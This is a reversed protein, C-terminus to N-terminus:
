RPNDHRGYLVPQRLDHLVSFLAGKAIGLALIRYRIAISHGQPKATYVKVVGGGGTIQVFKPKGKKPEKCITFTQFARLEGILTPPPDYTGLPTFWRRAKKSCHHGFDASASRVHSIESSLSVFSWSYYCKLKPMRGMKTHPPTM